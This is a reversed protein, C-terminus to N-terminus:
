GQADETGDHERARDARERAQEVAYGGRIRQREGGHQQQEQAHRDDGTPHRGALGRADIGGDGESTLSTAIIAPTKARVDRPLVSAVAVDGSAPAEHRPVTMTSPM